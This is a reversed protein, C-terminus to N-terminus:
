RRDSFDEPLLKKLEKLELSIKKLAKDHPSIMGEVAQGYKDYYEIHPDIENIFKQLGSQVSDIYDYAWERSDSLFKIFNEKHIDEEEKTPTQDIISRLLQNAEYLKKFGDTISKLRKRTNIYLWFFILSTAGLIFYIINM